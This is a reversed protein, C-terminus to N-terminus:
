WGPNQTLGAVQDRESQPIPFWYKIAYPSQCVITTGDSM